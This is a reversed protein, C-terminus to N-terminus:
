ATEMRYLFTVSLRVSLCVASLIAIDIDRTLTSVRYFSVNKRCIDRKNRFLHLIHGYNCHLIILEYAIKFPTM